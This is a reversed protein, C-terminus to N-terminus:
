RSGHRQRHRLREAPSVTWAGGTDASGWGSSTTRAFADSAVLKTVALTKTATTGAGGNDTVTLTVSYSGAAAYTHTATATTATSGDGFSWAYTQVTGDPDSSGTADFSCSLNTCSAGLVAKPPQNPPGSVTVTRTTTGTAGSNDTVTLTATYTGAAAYTHPASM